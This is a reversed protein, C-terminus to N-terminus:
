RIGGGELATLARAARFQLTRIRNPLLRLATAKESETTAYVVLDGPAVADVATRRLEVIVNLTRWQRAM